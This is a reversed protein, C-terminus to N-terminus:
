KECNGANMFVSIEGLLGNVNKIAHWCGEKAIL